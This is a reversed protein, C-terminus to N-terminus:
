EIRKATQRVGNQFLELSECKGQDDVKFTLTADVIKYFWETESRPFVQVTQQNTLGAMLKKDKVSITFVFGPALQYRGAYRKMVKEPVDVTKEFERPKVEIGALMRTLDNGLQDLEMTATNSLVVVAVKLQRNVLLVSHYGGTQGNHWRTSGDGAVLWGLGMHPPTDTQHKKWALEIARGIENDPPDLQAKAFRLMDVTSSRIGGAGPMDAFEWTSTAVGPAVHPTALRKQMSDSLEVRTDKMKLPGALRQQLLQDYDLGTKRSILHGLFSVALNSYEHKSGPARRLKHKGLFEYALQSTYDQYPNDTNLSPMNNPLRPLGSRHISLDILTIERDEWRPIKVKADDGLLQSITQDLRVEKRQVADALLLGSFVKSISGIEYITQDNPQGGGDSTLGLHVTAQDDGKVVGISLGVVVESDVYPTALPLVQEGLTKAQQAALPAAIPGAVLFTTWAAALGWFSRRKM